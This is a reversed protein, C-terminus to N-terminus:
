DARAGLKRLLWYDLSLYRGGGSFLLALLMIFYTAAFEIGNKLVTFSGASSLWQYNGHERLISIAREKRLSAEEILDGRWEWPVTLEAEPLVHWGFEWHATIAAVLMTFMLPVSVLRVALGPVLLLGGMLETFGALWAMFGPAPIGLSMFWYGVNEINNLKNYGALIFVPALYFRLLLPVIFDAKHLQYLGNQYREYYTNMTLGDHWHPFKSDLHWIPSPHAPCRGRYM